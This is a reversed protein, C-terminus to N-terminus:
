HLTNPLAIQAVDPSCNPCRYSYKSVDKLDVQLGNSLHIVWTVKGSSRQLTQEGAPGHSDGWGFYRRGLVGLVHRM